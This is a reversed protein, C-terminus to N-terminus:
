RDKKKGRSEGAASLLKVLAAALSVLAGALKVVELLLDM